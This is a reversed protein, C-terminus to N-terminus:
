SVVPAGPASTEERWFVKPESWTKDMGAPSNLAPSVQTVSDTIFCKDQNKSESKDFKHKFDM